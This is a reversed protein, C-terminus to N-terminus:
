VSSKLQSSAEGNSVGLPGRYFRLLAEGGVFFFSRDRLERCWNSAGRMSREFVRIDSDVGESKLFSLALCIAVLLGKATSFYPEELTAM